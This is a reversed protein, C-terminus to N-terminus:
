SGLLLDLYYKRPFALILQGFYNDSECANILQTDTSAHIKMAEYMIAEPYLEEIKDKNFAM